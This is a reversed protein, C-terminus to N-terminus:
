EINLLEKRIRNFVWVMVLAGGIAAMWWFRDLEPLGLQLLRDLPGGRLNKGLAMDHQATFNYALVFAWGVAGVQLIRAVLAGVRSFKSATDQFALVRKRLLPAVMMNYEQLMMIPGAIGEKLGDLSLAKRLGRRTAEKFYAKFMTLYNMDPMLENLSADLTAWTRGLELLDWSQTVGYKFMIRGAENSSALVNREHYPLSDIAARGSWIRYHRILDQRLENLGKNKLNPSLRLQLDVAKTFDKQGLARLMARYIMLFEKDVTGVSGLDILAFRSNRLLIINGPHMDAHFFNEEMLQQLFSLFLKEGVETPEVDNEECWARVRGPDRQQVRIFDSMLVGWICESVLINATSIRRYVRPVLIGQAKVVQRMRRMHSAEYRFDTEEEIIQALQDIARKMDILRLSPSLNGIRALFRLVSFDREFVKRIGPRLVKVVVDVGGKRLRALHVQSISAAAFPVPSLSEFVDGIPCGLEKEILALSQEPPFGIARHQLKDMEECFSRDLVDSRLSILQGMKVWLGGFEEFMSRLEIAAARPSYSGTIRRFTMRLAYGLLRFVMAITARRGLPPPPAFQLGGREMENVLDTPRLDVTRSQTDLLSYRIIQPEIRGAGSRAQGDEPETMGIGDAM